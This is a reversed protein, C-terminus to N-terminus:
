YFWSLQQSHQVFIYEPDVGLVPTDLLLAFKTSFKWVTLQLKRLAFGKVCPTSAFTQLKALCMVSFNYVGKQSGQIFGASCQQLVALAIYVAAKVFLSWCPPRSLAVASLFHSLKDFKGEEPRM